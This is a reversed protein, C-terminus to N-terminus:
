FDFAPKERDRDFSYVSGGLGGEAVVAGTSFNVVFIHLRGLLIKHVYPDYPPQGKLGAAQKVIENRELSAIEYVADILNTQLQEIM